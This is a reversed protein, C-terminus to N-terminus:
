INLPRLMETFSKIVKTLESITMERSVVYIKGEFLMERYICM